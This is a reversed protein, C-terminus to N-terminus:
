GGGEPGAAIRNAVAECARDFLKLDLKSLYRWLPSENVPDIGCRKLNHIVSSSNRRAGGHPFAVPIMAGIERCRRVIKRQSHKARHCTKKGALVQAHLAPADKRLRRLAQERANGTPRHGGNVNDVTIARSSRHDGGDGRATERDILDLVEIHRRCIDKLHELTTGTM